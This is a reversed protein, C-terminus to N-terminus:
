APRSLHEGKDLADKSITAVGSLLHRQDDPAGTGPPQLDHLSGVNGPELDQGFSPNDFPREGPDTAIAAQRTVEFAVGCRDDGKDAEGHDADHEPPECRKTM